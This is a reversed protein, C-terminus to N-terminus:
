SVPYSSENNVGLFIGRHQKFWETAPNVRKGKRFLKAEPSVSRWFRLGHNNDDPIDDYIKGITGVMIFEIQRERM